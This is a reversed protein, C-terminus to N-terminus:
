CTYNSSIYSILDAKMSTILDISCYVNPLVKNLENYASKWDGTCIYDGVLKLKFHIEKATDLDIVGNEIDLSLQSRFENYYDKGASEHLLYEDKRQQLTAM